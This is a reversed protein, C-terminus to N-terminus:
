HAGQRIYGEVVANEIKICLMDVWRHINAQSLVEVVRLSLRFSGRSIFEGVQSM